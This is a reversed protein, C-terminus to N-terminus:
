RSPNGNTGLVWTAPLMVNFFQGNADQTHFTLNLNLLKKIEVQVQEAVEKPTEELTVVGFWFFLALPLLVFMFLYRTAKYMWVGFPKGSDFVRSEKLVADPNNIMDLFNDRYYKLRPDDDDDDDDDTDFLGLRYYYMDGVGNQRTDVAGTGFEDFVWKGFEKADWDEGDLFGLDSGIDDLKLIFLLSLSDFVVDKPTDSLKLVLAMAIGCVLLMVCNMVADMNLYIRSWSFSYTKDKEYERMTLLAKIKIWDGEESNVQNMAWFMYTLVFLIGLFYALLWTCFGESLSHGPGHDYGHNALPFGLKYSQVTWHKSLLVAIPAVLQIIAILVMGFVKSWAADFIPSKKKKEGKAKAGKCSFTKFNFVSGGNVCWYRYINGNIPEGANSSTDLPADGDDDDASNMAKYLEKSKDRQMKKMRKTYSQGMVEPSQRSIESPESGDETGGDEDSESPFAEYEAPQPAQHYGAPALDSAIAKKGDIQQQKAIEENGIAQTRPQPILMQSRRVLPAGPRMPKTFKQLPSESTM